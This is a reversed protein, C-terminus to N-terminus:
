PLVIEVRRNQPERVGDDTAVLPDTEGKAVVSIESDQFGLAAFAARVAEGRRQSLKMNYADSGSRDAHGTLDLRVAKMTNANAAAAKIILDAGETITARDWDFFVIYSRPLDPAPAPAMAAPEPAPTPAMAVPQAVPQPKPAGFNYRFGVMVAHDSLDFSAKTGAATRLDLNQTQFYRYDAFLDLTQSMAYSVGAIGQLALANDSDNISSAGFPTARKMKVQSYGLGLGLYPTFASASSFDYMGNLMLSSALAEGSAATGSVTSLGAARRSLEVEARWKSGYDYGVFVSGMNGNDFKVSRSTTDTVTTSPTNVLGVGAGVYVHRANTADQAQVQVAFLTAILTAAIKFYANM